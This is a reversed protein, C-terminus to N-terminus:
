SPSTKYQDLVRNLSLQRTTLQLRTNWTADSPGLHAYTSNHTETYLQIFFHLTLTNRHHADIKTQSTKFKQRAQKRPKGFGQRCGVRWDADALITGEGSM